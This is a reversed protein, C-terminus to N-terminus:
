VLIDVLTFIFVTLSIYGNMNFFAANIKSLDNEKILSHEYIILSTIVLMGLLYFVGLDMLFLLLFLCILTIFHFWRSISLAKTTGFRQPISYLGHSRDFDIDQLAYIIDFGGVWFLVGFGLLFAPLEIAGRIAIWAGIPALSLSLGLFLHSIWTFRKTYSYLFLILIVLPSIKFCLPNLQYAAIILLLFSGFIFIITQKGTVLGAPIARNKTRPNLKDIKSDILRNLGMAGSRAGAMAVVIWLIQSPTPLGRAALIAGTFAFPLAFVTHSFKIMELIIKIKEFISYLM